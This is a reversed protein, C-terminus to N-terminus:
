PAAERADDDRGNCGGRQSAGGDPDSVSV